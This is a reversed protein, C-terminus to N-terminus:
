LSDLKLFPAYKNLFFIVRGCEAQKTLLFYFKNELRCPITDM